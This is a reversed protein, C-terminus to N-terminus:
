LHADSERDRRARLALAAARRLVHGGAAESRHRRHWGRGPRAAFRVLARYRHVYFAAYGVFCAILTPTSDHFAVALAFCLMGHLWLRPAVRANAASLNASGRRREIPLAVRRYVLSHLHVGEPAMLPMRRLVGRRYMSFVTEVIPYAGLVIVYWASLEPNRAVLRMSLEAYAFGIFYAGTDGLFIRGRPYNWVLFGTLAGMITAAETFTPADGGGAAALAIGGLMIVGTGAALGHAGDIINIANCAGAVMFWTLPLLVWAHGLWADVWPLDLRPITGQAYVSALMASVVAALVRYRPRVRGTLDEALGAAVLPLACWLLPATGSLLSHGFLEGAAGTAVCALFVFAGGLRSTSVQHLKQVGRPVDHGLSRSRMALPMLGAACVASIAVAWWALM